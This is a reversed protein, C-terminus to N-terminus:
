DPFDFAELDEDTVPRGNVIEVLARMEADMDRIRSLVSFAHAFEFYAAVAGESAPDTAAVAVEMEARLHEVITTLALRTAQLEHLTRISLDGTLRPLLAAVRAKEEPPAAVVAEATPDSGLLARAGSKLATLEEYNCRLIM